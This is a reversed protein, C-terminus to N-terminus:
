YGMGRFEEGDQPPPAMLEDYDPLPRTRYPVREYQSLNLLGSVAHSVTEELFNMIEPDEEITKEPLVRALFAVTEIIHSYYKRNSMEGILHRLAYPNETNRMIKDFSKVTNERMQETEQKYGEVRRDNISKENLLFDFADDTFREQLGWATVINMARDEKRTIDARHANEIFQETARQSLHHRMNEFAVSSFNNEVLSTLIYAHWELSGRTLDDFAYRDDYRKRSVEIQNQIATSVRESASNNELGTTGLKDVMAGIIDWLREDTFFYGKVVFLVCILIM